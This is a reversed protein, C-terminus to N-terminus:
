HPLNRRRLLALAGGIVLLTAVIWLWGPTNEDGGTSPLHTPAALPTAIIEQTPTTVATAAIPMTATTATTATVVITPQPTETPQEEDTPRPRPTATAEGPGPLIRIPVETERAALTNNFEDQAGSVSARNVSGVISRLATYVTTVTITEGPRLRTRGLGPLVDDWTLEGSITSTTTNISTPPPIAKWFQLYAQQYTDHLPLKIIDAAGDNSIAITFTLPMGGRPVSNPDLMKRLPAQGGVANSDRQAQGSSFKSGDSGVADQIHAANVTAPKPAIARFRTIVTISAGPSLPGFTSTLDAWTILGGGTAPTVINTSSLPNTSDLRLISSEYNDVLPLRTVTLTGTNTIRITFTLYQGVQVVNSGQLTKTIALRLQGQAQVSTASQLGFTYLLGLLLFALGTAALLTRRWDFLTPSNM